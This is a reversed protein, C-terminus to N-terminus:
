ANVVNLWRRLTAADEILQAPEDGRVFELLAFADAEGLQGKIKRLYGLWKEEGRALPHREVTQQDWEYVHTGVLRPLATDMDVLCDDYAMRQHPQWYTRMAPRDVADFFAEASSAEDTLTNAHWECALVIGAREAMDSIRLADDVVRQRTEADTDASGGKGVWVRIIGTELGQASALVGDFVAPDTVGVRYYSGYAACALGAARTQQGVRQALAVDGPPVHVDGGWEVGELGAEVCLAILRQVSLPRFTISVLGSRIM